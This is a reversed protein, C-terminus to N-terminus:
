PIIQDNFHITVTVHEKPKYQYAPTNQFQAWLGFWNNYPSGLLGKQSAPVNVGGHGLAECALTGCNHGGFLSYKQRNPDSNEAQRAKLYALINADEASTTPVVLADTTGGKGSESSLTQLLNNMSGQTINGSADREISPTAPSRVLGNDDTKGDAGKYRGYEFYHTSGDKDVIVVGGHGAGVTHQGSYATQYNPYVVAITENGDPDINGLPSNLAYSYLNWRQPSFITVRPV